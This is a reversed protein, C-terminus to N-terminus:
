QRAILGATMATHMSRLCLLALQQVGALPAPMSALVLPWHQHAPLCLLRPSGAYLPPGSTMAVKALLHVAAVMVTMAAHM